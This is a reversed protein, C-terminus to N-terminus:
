SHPTAGFNQQVTQKRLNVWLNLKCAWRTFQWWLMRLSDGMKGGVDYFATYFIQDCILSKVLKWLLFDLEFTFITQGYCVEFVDLVKSIKVTTHGCAM